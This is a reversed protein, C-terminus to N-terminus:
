DPENLGLKRMKDWLTKRSIGLAAASASIKGRNETLVQSIYDRECQQIYDALREERQGNLEVRVRSWADGFLAEPTLVAAQNFVCARELCNRLERINGPWPYALLAQEARPHFACPRRDTNNVLEHLFQRAYWLIDEPRERLPPVHINVVNIRYYLDERFEGAEVMASLDQHTACILRIDLPTAREAGIRTIQREQVARLLRIQMSLPM